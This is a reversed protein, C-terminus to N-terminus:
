TGIEDTNATVYLSGQPLKLKLTRGLLVKPREFETMTKQDTEKKVNATELIGERSGERYVTICKCGLKWALFYIKEVEETSIDQPLNVTSSLATDIRKQIVDQMRVRMEPKIQHATMFYAPLSNEDTIRFIRMYEKALPHWVKFEGESLSKSRRTYYLAFVPEGGGS